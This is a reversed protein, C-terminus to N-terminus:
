RWCCALLRMIIEGQVSDLGWGGCPTEDQKSGSKNTARALHAVLLLAVYM